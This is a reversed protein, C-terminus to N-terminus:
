HAYNSHPNCDAVITMEDVVPGMANGPVIVSYNSVSSSSCSNRVVLNGTSLCVLGNINSSCTNDSVRMHAATPGLVIGDGGNSSVTCHSVEGGAACQLDIGTSGNRDVVCRSVTAPGVCPLGAGGGAVTVGLGTNDTVVLDFMYTGATSPVVSVGDGTNNSVRMARITLDGSVTLGGGGGGGGNRMCTGGSVTLSGTVTVGYLANDQIDADNITGNGVLLVGPGTNDSISGGTVTLTGDVSLGGAGNRRLSVSENAIDPDQVATIGFQANGSLECQTLTASGGDVFLGSDGNSRCSSDTVRLSSSSVSSIGLAGNSDCRSRSVTVPGCGVGTGGDDFVAGSLSNDSIDDDNITGAVLSSATLGNGTNSTVSSGHLELSGSVVLLGGGGGGGGGNSSVVCEQLRCKTAHCQAGYRGNSSNTSRWQHYRGGLTQVGDVANEDFSDGDADTVTASATYGHRDNNSFSSGSLTVSSSDVSLGDLTNSSVVCETLEVTSSLLSMGHRANDTSRWRWVHYRLNAATVGDLGNNSTTVGDGDCDVDTMAVGSGTNSSCRSSSLSLSGQTVSLGDGGNSSLDCEHLRCDGNECRVGHSANRLAKNEKLDWHAKIPGTTRLDVGYVGNSSSSCDHLSADMDTVVVGSVGNSSCQTSSCRLAVGTVGVAPSAVVGSGTNGSAVCLDLSGDGTVDALHFGDGGNRLSRLQLGSIFGSQLKYGHGTNSFSSGGTVVLDGGVVVVGDAGSLSSSCREMVVPADDTGVTVTVTASMGDSTNHVSVCDELRVTGDTMDFGDDGNSFACCKEMLKPTSKDLVAASSFGDGGNSVSSCRVFSSVADTEVFGHGGNSLSVTGTVTLRASSSSSSVSVGNGTNSVVRCLDLAGDRDLDSVRIGDGTNNNSSCRLLVPSAKDIVIGDAGNSVASCEEFHLSGGNTAGNCAVRMGAGANHPGSVQRWSFTLVADSAAVVDFGDGSNSSSSCREMDMSVSSSAAASLHLGDVTNNSSRCQSLSLDITSGTAADVFTGHAGNRNNFQDRVTITIRSSSDCLLSLGTGTNSSCESDALHLSLSSSSPPSVRMGDRGNSSCTARVMQVRCESFSEVTLGDVGNLSFRVADAVVLGNTCDSFHVGSGVNSSSSSRLASVSTVQSVAIGDATCQSVSVDEVLLSRRNQVRLGVACGTVVGRRVVVSGENTGPNIVSCHVGDLSGAVGRIAFGNLDITVDEADVRVGHFGSACQVDGTLYYSGSSSIVHVADAAGPLSQVAVRPEVEDLRKMTGEPAGPPPNLDGAIAPVVSLLVAACGAGVRVFQRKM